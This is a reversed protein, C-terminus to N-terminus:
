ASADIQVREIAERALSSKLLLRAPLLFVLVSLQLRMEQLYGYPV